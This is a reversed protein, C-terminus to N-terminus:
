LRDRYSLLLDVEVISPTYGCIIRANHRGHVDHGEYLTRATRSAYYVSKGCRGRQSSWDIRSIEPHGRTGANIKLSLSPTPRFRAFSM